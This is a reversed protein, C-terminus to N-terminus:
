SLVAIFTNHQALVENLIFIDGMCVVGRFPCVAERGPARGVTQSDRYGAGLQLSTPM